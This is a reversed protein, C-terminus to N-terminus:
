FARGAGGAAFHQVRVPSGIRDDNPFPGHGNETVVVPSSTPPKTPSMPSLPYDERDASAGSVSGAGPRELNKYYSSSKHITGNTSSGRTGRSSKQSSNQFTSTLSRIAPKAKKFLPAYTPLCSCLIAIGLQITSWVMMPSLSATTKSTINATQHPSFVFPPFPNVYTPRERPGLHIDLANYKCHM